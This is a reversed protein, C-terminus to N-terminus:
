DNFRLCYYKSVIKVFFQSKEPFSDILLGASIVWMLVISTIILAIQTARSPLVGKTGAM